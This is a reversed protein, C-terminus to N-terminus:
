HKVATSPSIRPIPKGFKQGTESEFYWPQAMGACTLCLDDAVLKASGLSQLEVPGLSEYRPPGGNRLMSKGCFTTMEFNDALHRRHTRLNRWAFM